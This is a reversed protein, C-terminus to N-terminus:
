EKMGKESTIQSVIAERITENNYTMSGFMFFRETPIGLTQHMDTLLKILTDYGYIEVWGYAESHIWENNKFLGISFTPEDNTDRALHWAIIQPNPFKSVKYATVRAKRLMKIYKM